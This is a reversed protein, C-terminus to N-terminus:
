LDYIEVIIGGHRRPFYPYRALFNKPYFSASSDKDSFKLSKIYELGEDWKDGKLEKAIANKDINPMVNGKAVLKIKTSGKKNEVISITKEITNSLTLELNDDSEFLNESIATETLLTTIGEDFGEVLYYTASCTVKVDLDVDGASSGVAVSTKISDKVTNCAVSDEIIEWGNGKEQLETEAEEIATEKLTEVGGDVDRQALVTYEQKSGGSFATGNLGFVETSQYGQVTFFQNGEINYESGLEVAHVSVEVPVGNCNIAAASDISYSKGSTSIIHGSNLNVPSVGACSSKVFTLNVKGTAKDGKYAKGTAKISSSRDKEVSDTKIPIKLQTFDITTIETDGTFIKEVSVEKSEVYIAVKVFPVTQTYIVISIAAVVILSLIIIPILRRIKSKNDMEIGKKFPWLKKFDLNKLFSFSFKGKPKATVTPIPEVDPINEDEVIIKPEKEAPLDKDLSLFVGDQEVSDDAKKNKMEERSKQIAENIKREFVSEKIEPEKMAEEESPSRKIPKPELRETRKKLTEEWLEELPANPSDTTVLGAITANRVGTPNKIIQALLLKEEEDATELLVSLNVPSILIDSEEAFTLIIRQDNAEIIASVIDTLEDEKNVIIKTNKIKEEM